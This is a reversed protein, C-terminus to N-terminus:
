GRAAGRAAPRRRRVLLVAGAALAGLGILLPVAPAEPAVVNPFSTLVDLPATEDVNDFFGLAGSCTDVTDNVPNSASAACTTAPLTATSEGTWGTLGYLEHNTTDGSAGVNGIASVPVDIEITNATTSDKCGNGPLTTAESNGTATYEVAKPEGDNFISLPRGAQCSLATGSADTSAQAFWLDNNWRWTVLWVAGTHAGTVASSLGGSLDHVTFLFALDATNTNTVPCSGSAMTCVKLDTIDLAPVPNGQINHGPSASVADGVPDTVEANFDAQRVDGNLSQLQLGNSLGPVQGSGGGAGAFLSPGTAQQLESILGIGPSCTPACGASNNDDTYIIM